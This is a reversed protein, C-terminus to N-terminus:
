RRVLHMIRKAAIDYSEVQFLMQPYVALAKFLYQMSKLKNQCLGSAVLNAWCVAEPYKHGFLKDIVRIHEAARADSKQKSLQGNRHRWTALTAPVRKMDGALGIRLWYDFDGLWKFTEDRYGVDQIVSSRFISGVSPLCTHHRVMWEFDYERSVVHSRFSGDENISDWDPYACLVRPYKNMFDILKPIANPLLPDDANVIMFYKGKVMRLAENVTAQEGINRYHPIVTAFSEFFRLKQRSDDTSADDIIIYELGDCHQSLVSRVTQIVFKGCNYSPTIVTVLPQTM